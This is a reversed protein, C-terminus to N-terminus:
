DANQMAAAVVRLALYGLFLGGGFILTVPVPHPYPGADVFQRLLARGLILPRTIADWSNWRLFRGVYIGFGCLMLSGGAVLWGWIKGFSGEVERHVVALSLYGLMAGTGGCSLLLALLFWLPVHPRPGLHILDTLLYPANPLFLLWLGFWLAAWLRRGRQMASQFAAGWVLPVSALFLNWLLWVALGDKGLYLRFVLLAACWGLLLVVVLIRQKEKSMTMAFLKHPTTKSRSLFGAGGRCLKYYSRWIGRLNRRM